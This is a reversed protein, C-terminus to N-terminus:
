LITGTLHRLHCWSVFEFLTFYNKLHVKGMQHLRTCIDDEYLSGIVFLTDIDTNDLDNLPVIECGDFIVGKETVFSDTFIVKPPDSWRTHISDYALKASSGTGYIIITDIRNAIDGLGQWVKEQSQPIQKKTFIPNLLQDGIKQFAVISGKHGVRQYAPLNMLTDIAYEVAMLSNEEYRERTGRYDHFAMIGGVSIHPHWALIDYMVGTQHGSPSVHPFNHDGDIFLFDIPESWNKAIDTSFGQIMMAKPHDLQKKVKQFKLEDPFTDVAFFRSKHNQAYEWLVRTSGEGADTGIEGISGQIYYAQLLERLYDM